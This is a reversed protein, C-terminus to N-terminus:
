IFVLQRCTEHSIDCLYVIFIIKCYVRSGFDDDEENSYFSFFRSGWPKNMVLAVAQPTVMSPSSLSVLLGSTQRVAPDTLGALLLVDVRYAHPGPPCPPLATHATLAPALTPVVHLVIWPSARLFPHWYCLFLVLWIHMQNSHRISKSRIHTVKLNIFFRSYM